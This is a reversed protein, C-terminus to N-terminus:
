YRIASDAPQIGTVGSDMMFCSGSDIGDIKSGQCGIEKVNIKINDESRISSKGFPLEGFYTKL